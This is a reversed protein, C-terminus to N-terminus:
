RGGGAASARVSRIELADDFQFVLCTAEREGEEWGEATPTFVNIFWPSDEYPEGVYAAFVAECATRAEAVVAADGPYGTGTLGVVGIVEFEHPSACDVRDVDVVQDAGPDLICDGARLSRAPTDQDLLGGILFMLAAAGATLLGLGFM